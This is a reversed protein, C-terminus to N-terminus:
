ILPASNAVALQEGLHYATKAHGSLEEYTIHKTKNTSWDPRLLTKARWRPKKTPDSQFNEIIFKDPGHESRMTIALAKPLERTPALKALLKRLRSLNKRSAGPSPSRQEIRDDVHAAQKTNAKSV